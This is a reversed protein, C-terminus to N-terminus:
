VERYFRVTHTSSIPDVIDDVDLVGLVIITNDPIKVGEYERKAMLNLVEDKVKDTAMHFERLYVLFKSKHVEDFVDKLWAPVKNEIKVGGLESDDIASIDKEIFKHGNKSAADKLLAHVTRRQNHFLMIEGPKFTHLARDFYERAEKETKLIIAM